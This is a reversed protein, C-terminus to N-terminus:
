SFEQINDDFLFDGCPHTKLMKEYFSCHACPLNEYGETDFLGLLFKRMAVMKPSNLANFYGQEFVNANLKYKTFFDTNFLCCGHIEGDFDIQPCTFVQRCYCFDQSKGPKNPAYLDTNNKVFEFDKIPSYHPAFNSDFRIDMDLSNAIEKAKLIEHENHGFVIFKYTLKPLDSNYLEKFYNIKKINEIVNNFNGNRRYISYTEESAGDISVTIHGFKYKVLNEATQDTLYNLNVGTAIMNLNKKYGYEIIKDLDPNLFVEGSCSLEVEEFDIDDVIKKFNEFKLYGPKKLLHETDNKYALRTPCEPCNLQCMLCADIQLRKPIENINEYEYVYNIM